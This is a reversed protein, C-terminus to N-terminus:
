PSLTRSTFRARPCHDQKRDTDRDTATKSLVSSFTQKATLTPVSHWAGAPSVDRLDIETCFWSVFAENVHFEEMLLLDMDRESVNVLYRGFGEDSPIGVREIQGNLKSPKSMTGCNVGWKRQCESYGAALSSDQTTRCTGTQHADGECPMLPFKQGGASEYGPVDATSTATGM